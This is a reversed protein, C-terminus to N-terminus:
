QHCKNKFAQHEGQLTYFDKCLDDMKGFLLGQNADIKRLTRVFFWLVVLFLGAILAQMLDVHEFWSPSPDSTVQTVAAMAIVAWILILIFLVFGSLARIKIEVM